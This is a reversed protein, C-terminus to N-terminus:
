SRAPSPTPEKEPSNLPRNTKIDLSRHPSRLKKIASYGIGQAQLKNKELYNMWNKLQTGWTGVKTFLTQDFFKQKLLNKQMPVRDASRSYEACKRLKLVLAGTLARIFRVYEIRSPVRVVIHAHSWNLAVGYIQLSFRRGMKQVLHKLDHRSPAMAYRGRAHGSKLIIHMPRNTAIPRRIKRKGIASSPRGDKRTHIKEGGCQIENKEKKILSLQRPKCNTLPFHALNKRSIATSDSNRQRALIKKNSNKM